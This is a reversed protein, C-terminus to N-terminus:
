GKYNLVLVIWGAKIYDNLDKVLIESNAGSIIEKAYVSLIRKKECLIKVYRMSEKNPDLELITINEGALTGPKRSSEVVDFELLMGPEFKEIGMDCNSIHVFIKESDTEDDIKVFAFAGRADVIRGKKRM